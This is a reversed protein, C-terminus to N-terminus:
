RPVPLRTRAKPKGTQATEFQFRFDAELVDGTGGVGVGRRVTVTYITAPKLRRDPVFALTRGHQEFRGAIIPDITLHAPADVVGDQDFTVEIGTNTPVDVEEDSPLTGVVSLPQHAQFAWTDLTRGDAAMLTFRYLAGGTLPETPVLVATRGDADATVTFAIPPDSHLRAALDTAATGDLSALRFHSGLAVVGGQEDDATLAAVPTWHDDGPSTPDPSSGPRATSGPAGSGLPTPSGLAVDQGPAPATRWSLLGGILAVVVAASALVALRRHYRAPIIAERRQPAAPDSPLAEEPLPAVSREEVIRNRLEAPADLPPLAAISQADARLQGDIVRCTECQDLHAFLAARDDDSLAFDLASASLERARDHDIM